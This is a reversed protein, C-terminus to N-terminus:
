EKNEWPGEGPKFGPSLEPEVPALLAGFFPFTEKEEPFLLCAGGVLGAMPLSVGTGVLGGAMWGRWGRFTQYMAGTITGSALFSLGPYLPYKECLLVVITGYLAAFLGTRWGFKLGNRVSKMIVRDMYKRKAHTESRHVEVHSVVATHELHEIGGVRAGVRGGIFLGSLAGAFGWQMIFYFRRDTHKGTVPDVKILQQLRNFMTINETTATTTTDQSTEVDHM